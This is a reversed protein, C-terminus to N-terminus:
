GRVTVQRGFGRLNLGTVGVGTETTVWTRVQIATWINWWKIMKILQIHKYYFEDNKKESNFVDVQLLFLSFLLTQRLNRWLFWHVRTYTLTLQQLVHSNLLYLLHRRGLRRCSYLSPSRLRGGRFQSQKILLIRGIICNQLRAIHERVTISLDVSGTNFDESIWIRQKTVDSDNGYNWIKSSTSQKM